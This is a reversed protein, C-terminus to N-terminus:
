RIPLLWNFSIPQGESSIGQVVIRIRRATDSLPFLLRGQGNADIQGLPQWFLVDRRDTVGAPPETLPIPFSHSSVLGMVPVAPGPREGALGSGGKVLYIAIVGAAGRAGYISAASNKLVEIRSVEQPNIDRVIDLGAYVGDILYLPTNDGLSSSGGVWIEGGQQRIGPVRRLLDFISSMSGALNRDIVLVGDAASHLSSRVVDIPREDVPRSARVVVEALQRATSDRYWAPWAQQRQYAAQAYRSAVPRAPLGSREPSFPIGPADPQLRAGDPTIVRVRLTDTLDLGALRIRGQSDSRLRLRLGHGEFQVLIPQNTLRRGRETLVIGSFQWGQRSDADSSDSPARKRQTLLWVDVDGPQGAELLRAPRTLDGGGAGALWLYHQLTPQGTSDPLQDADTVAASWYGRLPYGTEDRFHLGIAVQERAEYRVKGTTVQLQVRSGFDTIRILREAQVQGDSDWLTLRCVGAQLGATSLVVALLGQVPQWKQAYVVQGRSHLTLYVPELRNRGATRVKVQLRASDTLADVWMSWGAAGAPPVPLRRPGGPLSDILLTYSQDAHPTLEVLSLGQSSVLCRAQDLGQQDVIRGPLPRGPLQDVPLRLGLRGPQELLWHGSEPQIVAQLAMTLTPQTSVSQNRNLLAVPAEYAPGVPPQNAATYARLWYTGTALTDALRFQGAARGQELRLWQHLVARGTPALLEVQLAAGASDALPLQRSEDLVYASFWLMDGTAYLGKDLHLYVLPSPRQQRAVQSTLLSDLFTDPRLPKGSSATLLTVPEAAAPSWDTPLLTALRDNSMYGRVDLGNGQVVSGTTTLELSQNPLLLLSYADPSDHYPSNAAYVRDYYVELPQESVLRRENAVAGPHFLSQALAPTLYRRDGIGVVPLSQNAPNGRLPAQYVRYGAQQQTGTQLCALLHQLSGQYVRLRNAQWDARQRTSTPTLEEFRVTGAFQMHGRYLDFHLLSYHLRYGLALNDIVLPQDAQARLHNDEETLTVVDPNVLRCQRAQPREGLMERTFTRVQRAWAATRKAKVTVAALSQQGLELNIDLTYSDDGALKLVRRFPQYGLVSVVIETNGQPVSTLRYAGHEDTITGRSTNNIYVNAFPLGEKTLADSVRGSLSTTKPQGLVINSYAFLFWVRIFHSM